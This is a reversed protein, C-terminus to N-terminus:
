ARVRSLPANGRRRVNLADRRIGEGVSRRQSYGLGTLSTLELDSRVSLRSHYAMSCPSGVEDKSDTPREWHFDVTAGTGFWIRGRWDCLMCYVLNSCM